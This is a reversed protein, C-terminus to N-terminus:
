IVQTFRLFAIDQSVTVEQKPIVKATHIITRM